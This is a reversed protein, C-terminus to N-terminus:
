IVPARIDLHVLKGCAPCCVEVKAEAEFWGYGCECRVHLLWEAVARGVRQEVVVYGEPLQTVIPRRITGGSDIEPSQRAQAERLFRGTDTATASGDTPAGKDAASHGRHADAPPM